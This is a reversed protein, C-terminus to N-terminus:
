GRAFGTNARISFEVPAGLLAKRASSSTMSKDHEILYKIQL